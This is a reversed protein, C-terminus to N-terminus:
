FQWAKKVAQDIKRYAYVNKSVKKVADNYSINLESMAIKIQKQRLTQVHIQQDFSSKRQLQFM